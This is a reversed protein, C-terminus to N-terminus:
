LLHELEDISKIDKFEWYKLVDRYIKKWLKYYNDCREEKPITVSENDIYQTTLENYDSSAM